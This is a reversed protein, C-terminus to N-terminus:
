GFFCCFEDTEIENLVDFITNVEKAPDYLHWKLDARMWYLKWVDKSKVYKAKAIPSTIKQTPNQFAPRVENLVFTSKDFSYIWDLEERIHTDPRHKEFWVSIHREIINKETM